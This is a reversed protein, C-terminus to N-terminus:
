LVLFMNGTPSTMDVDEGLVVEATFVGSIRMMVSGSM